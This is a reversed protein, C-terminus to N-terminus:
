EEMIYDYIYGLSIRLDEDPIDTIYNLLQDIFTERNWGEEKAVKVFTWFESPTMYEFIWQYNRRAQYITSAQSYSLDKGAQQSLKKTYKKVGSVKSTDEQLYQETAKKIARIQNANYSKKLSIRGKETVAKLNSAGLYDYLQRSAFTGKEGTLREIRLMRQNARKVLQMTERYLESEEPTQVIKKSM